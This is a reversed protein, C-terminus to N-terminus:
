KKSSKFNFYDFFFLFLKQKYYIEDICNTHQQIANSQQHPYQTRNIYSISRGTGNILTITVSDRKRLGADEFHEYAEIDM